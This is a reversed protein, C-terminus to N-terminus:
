TRHVQGKPPLTVRLNLTRLVDNNVFDETGFFSPMNQVITKYTSLRLFFLNANACRNRKEKEKMFMIVQDTLNARAADVSLCHKCFM